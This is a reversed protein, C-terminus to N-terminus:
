VNTTEQQSALVDEIANCVIDWRVIQNAVADPLVEEIAFLRNNYVIGIVYADRFVKYYDTYGLQNARNMVFTHSILFRHAGFMLRGGSIGITHESVPQEDPPPAILVDTYGTVQTGTPAWQFGLRVYDKEDDNANKVRLYVKLGPKLVSLHSDIVRRIAWPSIGM